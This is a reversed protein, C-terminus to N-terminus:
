FGFTAQERRRIAEHAPLFVWHDLAYDCLDTIEDDTPKAADATEDDTSESDGTATM